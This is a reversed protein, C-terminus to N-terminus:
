FRIRAQLEIERGRNVVGRQEGPANPVGAGGTRDNAYLLFYKNTLNRGILSLKWAKNAPTLSLSGNLRVFSRQLTSPALTDAAFYNGSYFADGTLEVEHDQVPVDYTFGANGSLRPSRAPTRGDYVQQLVLNTNNAFSCNPPPAAASRATGPAFTYAYCQGTYDRYKNNVYAMAGRLQLQDNVSFNGEVEFGRQVVKGANNITYTIRAPDYVNVQLDSFNYAFVAATLSLRRDLFRGRAGVDFGAATESGYDVDAITLTTTVPVGLGFGGSKFGTRYAAFLTYDSTPKWTLTVEPSVNKDKFYGKLVGVEDSGAFVTNGSNFPGAGYIHQRSFRKVERTWRAGGALELDSMIDWRVQGFLSLAHGRQRADAEFIVYRDAVANYFASDSIKTEQTYLLKTYGYYGGLMVNLPSDFDSSLRVEQSFETQRPIEISAVQSFTTQDIGSFTEYNTKSYGTVTDVSWQGFKAGMKLSSLLVDLKGFPRGDIDLSRFTRAIDIPTAGISTRNDRECEGFPEPIGNVRPVGGVCPGINQASVGIGDSDEHARLIKFTANFNSSPDYVLTARGTMTEVGPRRDAAGPLLAISAPAGTAPNYFPNSTATAINRLWGALRRYQVAVRFGLSDSLPGSLAGQTTLEDGVFEYSAQLTGELRRTPGQTTISIVGAPSNKGFFLAQPGKLVEVQQLDFFGFTAVRGNSTQAGDIAVSVAQEFGTQNAPSSIGRISISGGGQGPFPAVIVSPTLSGIATLDGANYRELTIADQVSAVVPVGMLTESRRRATVVIEGAPVEVREVESPPVEQDVTTPEETAPSSQAYASSSMLAVFVGPACTRVFSMALSGGNPKLNSRKTFRQRAGIKQLTLLEPERNVSCYLGGFGPVRGAESLEETPDSITRLSLFPRKATAALIDSMVWFCVSLSMEGSATVLRENM